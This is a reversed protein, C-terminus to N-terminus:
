WCRLEPIAEVSVVGFKEGMYEFAEDVADLEPAHSQFSTQFPMHRSPIAEL